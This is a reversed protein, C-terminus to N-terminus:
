VAWNVTAIHHRELFDNALRFHDCGFFPRPPRRASLPSPHNAELVLFLDPRRAAEILSRKAQAHGGWLMFVVPVPRQVMAMLVRDTLAEWGQQAHSGPRGAEVTLCANLLLVGQRAWGELNGNRRSATTGVPASGLGRRDVELFINRLSPPPRVGEPVSFALGHAQGPGHYPDQGLIVVRVASLPTLELAHFPMRPYITAGADLRGRVFAALRQGDPSAMFAQVAPRWDDALPWHLPDWALLQDAVFLM